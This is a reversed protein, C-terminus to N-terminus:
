NQDDGQTEMMKQRQEWYTPLREKNGRLYDITKDVYQIANVFADEPTFYSMTQFTDKMHKSTAIAYYEGKRYADVDFHGVNAHGDFECEHVGIRYTKWIYIM